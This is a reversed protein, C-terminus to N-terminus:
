QRIAGNVGWPSGDEYAWRASAGSGSLKEMVAFKKGFSRSEQETNVELQAPIGDTIQLKYVCSDQIMEAGTKQLSDYTWIAIGNEKGDQYEAEIKLLNTGGDSYRNNIKEIGAGEPYDQEWTGKFVYSEWEDTEFYWGGQGVRMGDKMLGAYVYGGPYVALWSGDEQPWMVPKKLKKALTRFDEGLIVEGGFRGVGFDDLNGALEQKLYLLSQMYPEFEPKLVSACLRDYVEKREETREQDPLAEFVSIAQQLVKLAEEAKGQATYADALKEYVALEKPELEIAKGFAVIAEEYNSDLLYKEGLDLYDQFSMKKQCGSLLILSLIGLVMCVMKLERVANKIKM